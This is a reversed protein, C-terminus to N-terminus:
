ASGAGGGCESGAGGWRWVRWAWEVRWRAQYAQLLLPTAYSLDPPLAPPAPLYSLRTLSLAPAYLTLFPLPVRPSPPRPWRVRRQRRVCGRRDRICM